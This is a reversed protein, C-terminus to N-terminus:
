GSRVLGANLSQRALYKAQESWTTQNRGIAAKFESLLKQHEAANPIAGTQSGAVDVAIRRVPGRTARQTPSLDAPIYLFDGTRNVISQVLGPGYRTEVTCSEICTAYVFISEVLKAILEQDSVVDRSFAHAGAPPGM